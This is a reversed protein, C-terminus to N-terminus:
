VSGPPSRVAVIRNEIESVGPVERALRECVGALHPQVVVGTLKLKGGRAIAELGSFTAGRDGLTALVRAELLKDAIAARSEETEQFAPSEALRRMLEVCTDVPVSDTNLVLDYFLPDEWRRGFLGYVTRAHAADNREIERRVLAADSIHLRKMMVRERFAMPACVRVCLVHPLGWLLAAAGWGRIVVNGERALTLIELATYRSLRKGDIKWRELLSAGGELYRHVSSEPMAICAALDHEVLEHHVVRLGMQEALAQAVDKGLTGMERTMAIVAM